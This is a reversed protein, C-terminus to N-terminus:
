RSVFSGRRTRAVVHDGVLRLLARHNSVAEVDFFSELRPPSTSDRVMRDLCHHARAVRPCHVLDLAAPVRVDNSGRDRRWALRFGRGRPVVGLHQQSQFVLRDPSLRVGDVFVGALHDDM